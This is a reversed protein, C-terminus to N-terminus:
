AVAGPGALEALRRLHEGQVSEVCRVLEVSLLAALSEPDLAALAPALRKVTAEIANGLRERQENRLTEATDAPPTRDLTVM